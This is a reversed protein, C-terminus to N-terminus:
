GLLSPIQLLYTGGHRTSFDLTEVVNISAVLVQLFCVHVVM